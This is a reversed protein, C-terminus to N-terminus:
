IWQIIVGNKQKDSFSPIVSPCTRNLRFKVLLPCHFPVTESGFFFGVLMLPNHRQLFFDLVHSPILTDLHHHHHTCTSVLNQGCIPDSLIHYPLGQRVNDMFFITEQCHFTKPCTNRGTEIACSLHTRVMCRPSAERIVGLQAYINRSSM